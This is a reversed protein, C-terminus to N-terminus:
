KGETISIKYFEGIKFQDFDERNALRLKVNPFGSNSVILIDNIEITDFSVSLCCLDEAKENCKARCEIRM